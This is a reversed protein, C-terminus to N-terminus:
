RCMGPCPTDIIKGDGGCEEECTRRHYVPWFNYESM